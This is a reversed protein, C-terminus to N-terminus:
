HELIQDLFARCRDSKPATFFIDPPAVEVIEGREMFVMRDAVKRAVGMEHTVVIM